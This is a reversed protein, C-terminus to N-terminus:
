RKQVTDWWSDKAVWASVVVVAVVGSGDMCAAAVVAIGSHNCDLEMM